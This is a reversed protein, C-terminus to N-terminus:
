AALAQKLHDAVGAASEGDLYLRCWIELNILALLHDTRDARQQEHERITREVADPDLLGRRTVSERSLVDRLVPALEARLWAGMPAGFGRKERHLISDPLVGELARKMVHKLEGGRVKLHGPMRAALEVLRQDLLPVRCELSVAMSMKDTLLLLDDPLQTAFDVDMLQRLPDTTQAEAFGRAICDDFGPPVGGRLLGEREAADFVQMYARYREEFPLADAQLFAKALRMKNLLRSHRDSPLLGALPAIVGSRIAGPIRHYLNRYYEDLYRKYGGFLEDGGVGSLIVTVDQRAFKSVLYTTIFAADAIPEDMHWILDPLLTAVDPQVVIEHHDTGFQEAVQRAFPLENYLQAGTSGHFGISYTKVPQSSHRSMFAVVASSDIGGSLFAGIPVDSVMQDRVSREMESRVAEVWQQEPRAGDIEAPLRYYRHKRVRGDEAILATGPELKRMGEFISNPACVYGVSLYQALAARDLRATIGPLALIAKAESAFILEQGDLRYYIPKIGLADRAVVLRRRRRDWLALGFMGDLKGLFADGYEEYAHVAVETDSHTAFRHGVAELERRLERFNYIEGNCVVIVQGDESAIPQHGGSVDIISLRRMGMLLEGDALAGSDDPGRHVIADGMRALVEPEFRRTGGLAL